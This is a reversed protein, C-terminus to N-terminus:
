GGNGTTGADPESAKVFDHFSLPAEGAKTALGTLYSVYAELATACEEARFEAKQARQQEFLLAATLADVQSEQQAYCRIMDSVYKQRAAERVNYDNGTLFLDCNSKTLYSNLGTVAVVAILALVNLVVLLARSVSSM